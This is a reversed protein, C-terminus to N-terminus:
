EMFFPISLQNKFNELVQFPDTQDHIDLHILAWCNRAFECDLFLHQLTEETSNACLVTMPPLEMNKRKLLGRTNLRDKLLLWFFVKHMHQCLPKWLWRFAPDVASHGILIQYAKAPNFNYTDLIM